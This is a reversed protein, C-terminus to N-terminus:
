EDDDQSEDWVFSKFTASHHGPALIERESDKKEIDEFMIAEKRKRSDHGRAAAVGGTIEQSIDAPKM